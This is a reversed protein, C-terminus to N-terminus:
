RYKAGDHDPIVAVTFSLNDDPYLRWAEHLTKGRIFYPGEQIPTSEPAVFHLSCCRSALYDTVSPGLPPALDSSSAHQQAIIVSNRAFAEQFVDDSCEFRHFADRLSDVSLSSKLDIVVAPVTM